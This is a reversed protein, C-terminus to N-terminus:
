RNAKDSKHKCEPDAFEHCDSFDINMRFTELFDTGLIGVITIKEDKEIQKFTEAIKDNVILKIYYSVGQEDTFFSEVMTDNDVSGCLGHSRYKVKSQKAISMYYKGFSTIYSQNSGTDVLFNMPTEHNYLKMVPLGGYTKKVLPVSRAARRMYKLVRRLMFVIVLSMVFLLILLIGIGRILLYEM